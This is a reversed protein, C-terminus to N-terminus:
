LLCVLRRFFFELTERYQISPDIIHLLIRTIMEMKDGSTILNLRRLEVKLENYDYYKLLESRRIDKEIDFMTDESDKPSTICDLLELAANVAETQSNTGFYNDLPSSQLIRKSNSLGFSKWYQFSSLQLFLCCLLVVTYIEGTMQLVDDIISKRIFFLV